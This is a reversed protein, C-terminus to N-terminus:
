GRLLEYQGQRMNKSYVAELQPRLEQLHVYLPSCELQTKNIVNGKIIGDKITIFGLEEMIKLANESVYQSDQALLEALPLESREALHKHVVYRFATAMEERQPYDVPIRRVVRNYDVQNFLLYLSKARGRLRKVMPALAASPIDYFVIHEQIEAALRQEDGLMPYEKLELYPTLAERRLEAPLNQLDNVYVSLKNHVKALNRLLEYKNIGKYRYDGLSLQQKISMAHLQVSTEERWINIKPQFAVDAIMNDFMYNLLEAQNWMVCRYSYDGKDLNFTLHNQERGMARANHILAHHFAFVPAQNNCGCPELLQLQELDQLTIEGKDGIVCDVVQHPQYDEEQLHSRVYEKFRRTFEEVKQAPLTLGAAQHHGGYQSLIDSEAAIAEYLNLAPISRCSGKAMDGSLSMLITPLHYKEVLRSAVIGIVGQHWGESALVIATDIHEEKALLAEAEDQIQHCIEQRLANERNLEAAITHAKHEDDTVLLEVARQAHELRGVANLRPALGFGINDSGIKESDLGSAEILARLGVLQTNRMAKLGRRVLERNEGVLPVIDAVTGLAALETYGEWTPLKGPKGQALAQCVKFAIGVGSLEKFPYADDVQKANVIAYAPPLQEPVTHHDTIIIDLCAPANEVEHLGSIGCDVTIVLTTGGEAIHQLAEDNLGYGESKRQPIYTAIRAGRSKLYLYLLSSASIGDVDYDGYVTIQEGQELAREIRRVTKEMDKLLFPDHFPTMSGYLFERMSETDNMGRELLIGTVLPSIGLEAALCGAKYKDYERIEWIREKAIM